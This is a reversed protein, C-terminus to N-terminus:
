HKPKIKDLICPHYTCMTSDSYEFWATWLYTTSLPERKRGVIVEMSGSVSTLWKSRVGGVGFSAMFRVNGHTHQRCFREEEQESRQRVNQGTHWIPLDSSPQAYSRCWSWTGPTNWGPSCPGGSASPSPLSPLLFELFVFSILPLHPACRASKHRM